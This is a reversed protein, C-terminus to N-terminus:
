QRLLNLVTHNSTVSHLKQLNGHINFQWCRNQLWVGLASQIPHLQISVCVCVKRLVACWRWRKNKKVSPFIFILTMCSPFPFFSLFIGFSTLLSPIQSSAYYDFYCPWTKIHFQLSDALPHNLATHLLDAKTLSAPNSTARQAAVVLWRWWWRAVLLSLPAAPLLASAAMGVCGDWDMSVYWGKGFLGFLILWYTHHDMTYVQCENANTLDIVWNQSKLGTNEGNSWFWRGITMIPMILCSPRVQISSIIDGSADCSLSPSRRLRVTEREREGAIAILWLARGVGMQDQITQLRCDQM